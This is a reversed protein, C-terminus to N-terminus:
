GRLSWWAALLLLLTAIGVVITKFRRLARTKQPEFAQRPAFVIDLPEMSRNLLLVPGDESRAARVRQGQSLLLVLPRTLHCTGSKSLTELSYDFFFDGRGRLSARESAPAMDAAGYFVEAKRLDQAAWTENPFELTDPHDLYPVERGRMWRAYALLSAAAHAYMADGQGRENKQELYRLLAQLFVTYSWRREADLLEHAEIDDDPHICRRILQEAKALWPGDPDLRDADLLCMIANGAGRGPGHYEAHATSSALGTAGRALWRFVTKSGDDCNIIWHALGLVAARSAPAGTMFYHLLLGHSYCHENSPGGGGVGPLLPYSRHTSTAADTYHSTHWFLGGNFAAKDASTHYVDIDVVHRALNDMLRWWRLDSARMFQYAFGAIADYQNNYHSTRVGCGASGQMEHDAVLDGFHRWGYEDVREAKKTFSEAGDIAGQVIRDFAQESEVQPARVALLPVAATVAYWEPPLVPVLPNRAWDLPPTSVTDDGFAAVFTHTKREGGQLEHLDNSWPFLAFSLVDDAARLGKPFNQWFLDPGLSVKTDGRSICAVPTARSGHRDPGGPASLRYGPHVMPVQGLRNVHNVSNWHVGGSSEQLLDFGTEFRELSTGRDLSLLSESQGERGSLGFDISLQRFLISGRDGLVWKGNKHRARKGNGLTVSVRTAALGAFFHFLLQVSLGPQGVVSGVALLSVRLPGCEVISVESARVHSRQGYADTFFLGSTEADLIDRGAVEAAFLPQKGHSITFVSVGTDVQFGSERAEVQIRPGATKSGVAPAQLELHYHSLEDQSRDARFDVLVWRVSGDSWHEMPRCQTDVLEGAPGTVVLNSLDFVQGRALPVGMCVPEGRRETVPRNHETRLLIRVKFSM